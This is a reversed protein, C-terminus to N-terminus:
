QIFSIRSLALGVGAHHETDTVANSTYMTTVALVRLGVSPTRRLPISNISPRLIMELPTPQKSASNIHPYLPDELKGVFRSVLCSM